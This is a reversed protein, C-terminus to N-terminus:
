NVEKEGDRWDSLAWPKSGTDRTAIDHRALEIPRRSAKGEDYLSLLFERSYVFPKLPDQTPSNAAVPITPSLISSFSRQQDSTTSVSNLRSHGNTLSGGGISSSNILDRERDGSEWSGLTPTLNSDNPTPGSSFSSGAHKMDEKVSGSSPVRRSSLPRTASPFAGFASSPGFSM